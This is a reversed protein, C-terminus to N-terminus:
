GFLGDLMDQVEDDSAIDSGDVSPNESGGGGSGGNGGVATTSVTVWRGDLGKQKVIGYGATYIIMGIEANYIAADIEADSSNILRESVLAESRRYIKMVETSEM